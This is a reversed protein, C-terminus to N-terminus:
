SVSKMGVGSCSWVENRLADEPLVKNGFNSITNQMYAEFSCM